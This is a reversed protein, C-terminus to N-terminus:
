ASKALQLLAEGTVRCGTWGDLMEAGMAKYFAISPENWDLVSWEFRTLGEAVCKKALHRLLAKGLGAGRFEPRVFLDELFIGHRGRFTSFNYFWLAFGADVGQWSVIECFVRPNDQFLAEKIMAETADVADLLKEYIALERIFDFVLKTDEPRAQRIMIM